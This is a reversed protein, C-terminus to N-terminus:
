FSSKKKKKVKKLAVDAADWALPQILAAAVPWLSLLAPGLGHRCGAGCNTAVSSREGSLSALSQVRSSMSITPNTVASGCHSSESVM